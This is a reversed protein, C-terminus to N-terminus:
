LKEINIRAIDRELEYLVAAILQGTALTELARRAKLQTLRVAEDIAKQATRAEADM